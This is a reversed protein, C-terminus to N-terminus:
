TSTDNFGDCATTQTFNDGLAQDEANSWAALWFNGGVSSAYGFLFCLFTIISMPWTCAKCYALVISFHVRGTKAEEVTTLRSGKWKMGDEEDESFEQQLTFLCSMM